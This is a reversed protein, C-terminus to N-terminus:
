CPVFEPYTAKLNEAGRWPACRSLWLWKPKSSTISRSGDLMVNVAFVMTAPDDGDFSLVKYRAILPSKGNYAEIHAIDKMRWEHHDSPTLGCEACDMLDEAKM